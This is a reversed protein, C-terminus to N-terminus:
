FDEDRLLQLLDSYGGIYTANRFIIPFTRHEKQAVEKIFQLFEEKKDVLYPDCDVVIPNDIKLLAKAKDCYPCGSKSYITYGTISPSQFM